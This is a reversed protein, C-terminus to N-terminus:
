LLVRGALFWLFFLASFFAALAVIAMKTLRRTTKKRKLPPIKIEQEVFRSEM